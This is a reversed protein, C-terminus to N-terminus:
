ETFFDPNMVTNYLEQKSLEISPNRQQKQLHHLSNM